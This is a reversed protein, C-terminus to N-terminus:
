LYRYRLWDMFEDILEDIKKYFPNFIGKLNVHDSLDFNELEFKTKELIYKVFLDKIIPNDDIYNLVDEYSLMDNNYARYIGEFGKIAKEVLKDAREFGVENM